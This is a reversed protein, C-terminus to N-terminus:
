GLWLAAQIYGFAFANAAALLLLIINNIRRM